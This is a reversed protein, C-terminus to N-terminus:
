GGREEAGAHGEEIMFEKGEEIEEVVEVTCDDGWEEESRAHGGDCSWDGDQHCDKLVGVRATEGTPEYIVCM